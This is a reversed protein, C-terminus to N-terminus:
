YFNKADIWNIKYNGIYLDSKILFDPTNIPQGHTKIQEKTLEEQTIYKISNKKLFHEVKKEFETSEKMVETGDVLAYDDNNIAIELQEKDHNSLINPHIIIKTLKTKYKSLFVERLINLPSIDFKGSIELVNKGNIYDSIIQHSNKILKYHNNIMHNKTYSSKISRILNNSIQDSNDPFKEITTEKIKDLEKNTIPAYITPPNKNIKKIIYQEIENVLPRTIINLKISM